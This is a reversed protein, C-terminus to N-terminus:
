PKSHFLKIRGGGAETQEVNLLAFTLRYRSEARCLGACNWSFLRHRWHWLRQEFILFASTQFTSWYFPWNQPGNSPLIIYPLRVLDLMPIQPLVYVINYAPNQSAASDCSDSSVPWFFHQCELVFKVYACCLPGVNPIGLTTKTTCYGLEAAASWIQWSVRVAM